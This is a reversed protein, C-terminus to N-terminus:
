VRIRVCRATPLTFGGRVLARAGPAAFLRQLVAEDRGRVTAAIRESWAPDSKQAFPIPTRQM